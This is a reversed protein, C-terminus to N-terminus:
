EVTLGPMPAPYMISDAGADRLASAVSERDEALVIVTGGGGAGALKAGWAGASRAADILRENDPGSGGLAAVLAHNENMLSGLGSYDGALVAEKALRALDAIRGYSERVLRDGELWRQRPSKHVTGSDHRLGTHALLLPPCPAHNALPEVVALPEDARQELSEKGAFTMFNLGGFAAMHQDQFGCLVGMIGAEIKRADEALDWLHSNRGLHRSLAGVTAVVLATSGALGAQMPIDTSLTMRLKHSRPDIEFWQLAARAIDLRDGRLALDDPGAIVAKEGGAEVILGDAPSVECRARERTTLSLVSGGYIDTPNGVIGCRGPATAVIM